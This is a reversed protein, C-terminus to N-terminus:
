IEILTHSIPGRQEPAPIHHADAADPDTSHVVAAALADGYPAYERNPFDTHQTNPLNSLHRIAQVTHTAALALHGHHRPDTKATKADLRAIATVAALAHDLPHRRQKTPKLIEALYSERHPPKYTELMKKLTEADDSHERLLDTMPCNHCSAQREIGDECTLWIRKGDSTRRCNGPPPDTQAAAKCIKELHDTQPAQNIWASIIQAFECTASTLVEDLDDAKQAGLGDLDINNFIQIGNSLQCTAIYSHVMALSADKWFAEDMLHHEKAKRLLHNRHTGQNSDTNVITRPLLFLNRFADLYYETDSKATTSANAKTNM